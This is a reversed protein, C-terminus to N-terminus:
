LRSEEARKIAHHHGCLPQLNSLNTRAGGDSIRRIHDVMDALGMKGERRCERCWPETRLVYERVKKWVASDYFRKDERNGESRMRLATKEKFQEKTHAPCRSSSTVLEPCGPHSCPRPPKTPM